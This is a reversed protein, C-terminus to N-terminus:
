SGPADSAAHSAPGSQVDAHLRFTVCFESGGGPRPQVWARGGHQRAVQDVIALGVGSGPVDTPSSRRYLEFVRRRQDEDVGPGRDRVVLGVEGPAQLGDVEVEPAAGPRTFKLANELLNELVLGAWVSGVPLVEPPSAVQVRAGRASIAHELDALTRAVVEAGLCWAPEAASSRARALLTLDEVMRRLREAAGTLRELDEDVASADGTAMDERLLEVLAGVHRLPTRLDHCVVRFLTELEEGKAKLEDEVQRRYTVDRVTSLYAREGDWDIEVTNLELVRPEGARRTVRLDHRGVERLLPACTAAGAGLLSSAARNRFRERGAADLVVLGDACELAVRLNRDSQRLARTARALEQRRRQLEVFVDVKQRVVRPQVPKFVFDVAGAAYAEEIQAPDSPLGTVFIIPTERTRQRARILSATQFGDLGRMRVDLLVVAAEELLLCRLAEEGSAAGLVQRDPGALLDGLARRAKDDDDVVLILPPSPLADPTESASPRTM